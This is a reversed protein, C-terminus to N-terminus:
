KFPNFFVKLLIMIHVNGIHNFLVSFYDKQVVNGNIVTLVFILSDLLIFM